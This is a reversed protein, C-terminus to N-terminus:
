TSVQDTAIVTIKHSAKTERDLLKALQILGTRSNIKFTGEDDDKLSFVVQQNVGVFFSFNM